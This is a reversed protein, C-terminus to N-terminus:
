RHVCGLGGPLRMDKCGRRREEHSCKRESPSFGPPCQERSAYRNQHQERVKEQADALELGKRTLDVCCVGKSESLFSCDKSGLGLDRCSYPCPQCYPTASAQVAGFVSAIAILSLFYKM